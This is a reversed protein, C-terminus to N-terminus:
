PSTQNNTAPLANFLAADPQDTQSRTTIKNPPVTLTPQQTTDFIVPDFSANITYTTGTTSRAFSTLVVGSFANKSVTSASQTSYTTFKLTDAFVNVRDLTDATGTFQITHQTFNVETSAINIQAPVVQALYGFLRSTMPSQSDLAPLSKLQNQVTLIKSLDPTQQLQSTYSKIDKNVDSLHKKQLIDVALVLLILIALSIIAALSAVVLVMHKTRRAKIFALKVDPLLNFQIM